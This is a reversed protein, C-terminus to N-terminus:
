SQKQLIRLMELVRVIKTGGPLSLCDERKIARLVGLLVIYAIAGAIISLFMCVSTRGRLVMLLLVNALYATVGCGAGALLPKVLIDFYSLGIGTTTYFVYFALTSIVAYCLLNSYPLAKVNLSPVGVLIFNFAVKSFAGFALLKVPVDIRGIGQLLSNISASVAVIIAVLGLVGVMPYAIEASVPNRGAYLFRTIPGCLAFIGCGLPAAIIMTLRVVSESHRKVDILNGQRWAAAVHPMSSIGFAGTISPILNFLPTSLGYAGYLYNAVESPDDHLTKGALELLGHFSDFLEKSHHVFVRILRDTVTIGDIFGAVYVTVTSLAIPIGISLIKKAIIRDSDPSPSAAVMEPAFTVGRFRDRIVFYIYGVLVSLTVGFIAAAASYSQIIVDPKQGRALEKGLITGAKLFEETLTKKVIYSGGLGAAVKVLVELLQSVATPTMNAMGQTFGRHTAMLCSFLISPTVALIAYYALPIKLAWEAYPKAALLLILSGALGVGLMLVTAVHKVRAIDKYRGQVRYEAVIKSIATPFGSVAIAYIVLYINYAYTYYGNGDTGIVAIMPVKYIAGIIKVILSALALVLAGEILSQQKREKTSM